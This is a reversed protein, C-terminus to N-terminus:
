FTGDTLFPIVKCANVETAIAVDYAYGLEVLASTFRKWNALSSEGARADVLQRYDPALVAAVLGEWLVPMVSGPVAGVVRAPGEDGVM